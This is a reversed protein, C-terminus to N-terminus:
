DDLLTRALTMSAHRAFNVRTRDYRRTMRPDKHRALLEVDRMPVGADLAATIASHRLSHPTVKPDTQNIGARNALRTVIRAMQNPSLPREGTPAPLHTAPDDHKWGAWPGGDFLYGTRREGIVTELVEATQEPVPARVENDGKGHILITTYGGYAGIEDVMLTQIEGTRLGSLTLLLAIAHDRPGHEEATRIFAKLEEATLWRTDSMEPPKPRRVRAAPNRDCADIDIAYAYLSSLAAIRRAISAPRAQEVTMAQLWGNVHDRTAALPAVGVKDCWRGWALADGKYARRTHVSTYSLLWGAVVRPWSATDSNTLPAAPVLQHM